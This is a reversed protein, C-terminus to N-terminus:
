RKGPWFHMEFQQQFYYRKKLMKKKKIKECSTDTERDLKNKLFIEKSAFPFSLEIQYAQISKINIGM